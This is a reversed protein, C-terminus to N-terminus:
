NDNNSSLEKQLSNLEDWNGNLSQLLSSYVQYKQDYVKIAKERPEYRKVVKTMNKVAETLDAYEGIGVACAIAGGLGGLESNATIEIPINLVDAFMQIWQESNCAGGSMRIAKPKHGLVKLLQEIHQRHAFCIGEYVARIMESKTTSSQLGIFAGEANPDSNSGYLFPFFVLKAYSEDTSDLMMELYDYISKNNQQANQIEDALLMKLMIDLNGASTPSSAEILNAGTPFISNMLGSEIPALQESPFINMNWTGAIMSFLDDSLVGTALACADIDFMGGYVPTGSVLGTIKAAENTIEGALDTAHILPPLKTAIEPISFFNYLRLDYEGTNLNILNNGSADGLEQYIKGTLLYRIFDKNSLVYNIQQYKEPQNEKLWRLIVPSQSAMIQQHSIPYIQEVHESLEAAIDKARSDTSLIGNMFIKGAADLAYLGKGHGVVSVASIKDATIKTKKLTAQIVQGIDTLLTTLKIEQFNPKSSLRKTAFSSMGLQHGQVDTLIVKTNTGGNDITLFYKM